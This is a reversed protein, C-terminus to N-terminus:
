LSIVLLYTIMLILIMLAYYNQYKLPTTTQTVYSILCGALVIFIFNLPAVNSYTEWIIYLSVMFLMGLMRSYFYNNPLNSSIFYELIVFILMSTTFIKAMQQLSNNTPLFITAITGFVFGYANYILYGFILLVIPVFIFEKIIKM